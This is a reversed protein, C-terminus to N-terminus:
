DRNKFAERVAASISGAKSLNLETKETSKVGPLIMNEFGMKGAERVRQNLFPIRRIEGGLGVEGIFV